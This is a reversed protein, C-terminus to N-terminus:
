EVEKQLVFLYESTKLSRNRLNRSGRYTNYDIEVTKVRGFSQLMNEMEDKSIFGENNYSVIAYRARLDSLLQKMSALAESRKNYLSHNWDTPIGSVKSITTNLKNNLITNLMFYNSGYPHQNYPPDIYAVDVVDLRRVLQNADDNFVCYDTSFNSLIPASLDIDGMIRSLANEGSGGFKGIGTDKDKYFGKFIGATNAHISAEILLRALFYKRYNEPVFQDIYTRISDIYLANEHTFFAREGELINATDKPAYYQTIIGTIPQNQAEQNLLALYHNYKGIDFENQNSLYCSNIVWSYEELDNAYVASSFQKLYRSVIGSGSFLDLSVLKDKNLQHQIEVVQEGIYNLLTRKNGLYTLIQEELYAQNEPHTAFAKTVGKCM